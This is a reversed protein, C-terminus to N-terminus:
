EESENEDSEAEADVDSTADDKDVNDAATEPATATVNEDNAAVEDAEEAEDGGNEWASIDLKAAAEKDLIILVDPHKRLAVAPCSTDERGRLMSFVADAKNEGTALLIIKKATLIENIGMTLAYNPVLAPNKFAAANDARTKATLNAIHTPTDPKTYPENFAIHGNAGIGLIQIDAPHEKVFAAYDACEKQLDEAMGNPIHTNEPKIDIHSFLNDRMFRAFSSKDKADVGVYEDLNVAIVDKYSTGNKKHDDVMKAYLPLPTSGTAFGIVADPKAKLVNKIEFFAREALEASNRVISIRM